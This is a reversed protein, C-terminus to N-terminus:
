VRHREFKALGPFFERPSSQTIQRMKQPSQSSWAAIVQVNPLVFVPGTPLVVSFAQHWQKGLDM